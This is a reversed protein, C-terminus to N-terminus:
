KGGRREESRNVCGVRDRRVRLREDCRCQVRHPALEPQAHALDRDPHHHVSTYITCHSSRRSVNTLAYTKWRSFSSSARIVNPSGYHRLNLPRIQRRSKTFSQSATTVSPM